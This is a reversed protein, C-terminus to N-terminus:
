GAGGLYLKNDAVMVLGCTRGLVNNDQDYAVETVWSSTLYNYKFAQTAVTDGSNTITYIYYSNESEYAVGFATTAFNPSQILQLFTRQIPNSVLGTGQSSLTMCGQQSMMYVSDNLVVASEPGQIFQTVNFQTFVWSTPDTGTLVYVGDGKIIFMRDKLALIRYIPAEASGVTTSNLAPVAEPQQLKSWALGNIQPTSIPGVTNGTTPIIPNWVNPNSSNLYFIPQNVLRAEIEIKGPSQTGSADHAYVIHNSPCTNIVRILSQVTNAINIAPTSITYLLFSGSSPDEAAAATYTVGGIDLTDGIQLGSAGGASLLSFFMDLKTTYNAYFTFNYYTAMDKALPPQLNGQTIQEQDPNTYLAVGLLEDPVDDEVSFFKNTIDTPSCNGEICEYCNDDPTSQFTFSRYIRYTYTTDIGDPIYFVLDVNAAAGNLAIVNAQFSNGAPLSATVVDGVQYGTGGSVLQCAVVFGESVLINATASSGSGGTLATAPYSGDTYGFGENTISLGSIPGNENNGIVLRESPYGELLNGNIDTYVWTMRYAVQSGTPLFGTGPDLSIEGGLARPVGALTPQSLVAPLKYVGANTTFYFNKNAHISRMRFDADPQTYTGTYPVWTGDGDSDYALTNTYNILKTNQYEMLQRIGNVPNIQIATGYKMRGRRTEAISPRDITINQALSLAGDPVESFNNPFTYLGKIKQSLTQAM